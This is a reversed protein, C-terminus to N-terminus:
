RIEVDDVVTAVEVATLVSRCISVDYGKNILIFDGEDDMKYLLDFTFDINDLGLVDLNFQNAKVSYVERLASFDGTYFDCNREILNTDIYDMEIKIVDEISVVGLEEGSQPMNEEKVELVLLDYISDGYTRYCDGSTPMLYVGITKGHLSEDIDEKDFSEDINCFLFERPDTYDTSLDPCAEGCYSKIERAQKKSITFSM